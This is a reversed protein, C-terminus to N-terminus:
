EAVASPQPTEVATAAPEVTAPTLMEAAAPEHRAVTDAAPPAPALTKQDEVRVEREITNKLEDSAKKFENLARGLMKGIEPLKRPGFVILAVLFILIIESFGLGGM